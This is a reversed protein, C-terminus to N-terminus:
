GEAIASYLGHSTLFKGPRGPKPKRNPFLPEDPQGFRRGTFTIWDEVWRAVEDPLPLYHAEDPDRTKGPFIRLAPGSTAHDTFPASHAATAAHRRAATNGRSVMGARSSVAAAM